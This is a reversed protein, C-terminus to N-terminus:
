RVEDGDSFAVECPLWQFKRSFPDQLLHDTYPSKNEYLPEVWLACDEKPPVELTLGEGCRTICDDLGVLSDPLIRTKNYVVPFLSPHVLDLVTENSGPHWDRHSDPVDELKAVAASLADKLAPSVATDSKVVDGDFVSIAGTQHFSDLKHRLEAICWDFMKETIDLGDIDGEVGDEPDEDGGAPDGDDHKVGEDHDAGKGTRQAAAEDGGCGDNHKHGGANTNGADVEKDRAQPALVESKWKAVIEDDDIQKL